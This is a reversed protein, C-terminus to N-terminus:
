HFPCWWHSECMSTWWILAKELQKDWCLGRSCQQFVFQLKFNDHLERVGFLSWRWTYLWHISSLDYIHNTPGFDQTRWTCKMDNLDEKHIHIFGALSGWRGGRKGFHGGWPTFFSWKQCFAFVPKGILLLDFGGQRFQFLISNQM